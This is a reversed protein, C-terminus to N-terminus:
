TFICHMGMPNHTTTGDQVAPPQRTTNNPRTTPTATLDTFYVPSPAPINNDRESPFDDSMGPPVM